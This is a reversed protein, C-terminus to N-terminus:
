AVSIAGLRTSYFVRGVPSLGRNEEGRSTLRHAPGPHAIQQHLLRVFRKMPLPIL